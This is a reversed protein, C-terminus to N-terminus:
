IDCINTLLASLAVSEGGGWSVTVTVLRSGPDISAGPASSAVLDDDADRYANAVTVTRTYTGDITEPTTGLAITTPDIDLYYSNGINLAEITNWNLDRIGRVMEQGEAALLNAKVHERVTTANDFYLALANATFLVVVAFLAVGILVEVLSIGRQMITATRRM